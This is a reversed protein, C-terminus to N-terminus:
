NKEVYKELRRTYLMEQLKKLPFQITYTQFNDYFLEKSLIMLGIILSAFLFLFLGKLHIMSIRTIENKNKCHNGNRRHKTLIRNLVGNEKMRLIEEDFLPKYPSGKPFMFSIPVTSFGVKTDMLQCDKFEELWTATTHFLFLAYDGELAEKAVEKESSKFSRSKDEFKTRGAQQVLSDNMEHWLAQYYSEGITSIQYQSSVLEELSSFPIEPISVSLKSILMAKWHWHVLCGFISVSLFAVRFDLIYPM